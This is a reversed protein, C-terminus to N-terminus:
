LMKEEVWIEQMLMQQCVKEEGYRFMELTIKDNM